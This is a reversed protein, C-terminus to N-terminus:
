THCPAQSNKVISIVWPNLNTPVASVVPRVTTFPLSSQSHAPAFCNNMQLNVNQLGVTQVPFFVPQNGALMMNLKTQPFSQVNQRRLTDLSQHLQLNLSNWHFPGPYVTPTSFVKSMESVTISLASQYQQHMKAEHFGWRKFGKKGLKFSNEGFMQTWPNVEERLTKLLAREIKAPFPKRGDAGRIHAYLARQFSQQPHKIQNLRTSLWLHFCKMSFVESVDVEEVNLTPKICSMFVKFSSITRGRSKSVRSQKSPKEGLSSCQVTTALKM